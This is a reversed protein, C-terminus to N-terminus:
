PGSRFKGEGAEKGPVWDGRYRASQKQDGDSKERESIRERGSRERTPHYM